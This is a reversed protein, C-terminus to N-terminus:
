HPWKTSVNGDVTVYFDFLSKNDETAAPLDFSTFTTRIYDNYRDRDDNELFAGIGWVLAFVYLRHLHEPTLRYFYFKFCARKENIIFNFILDCKHNPIVEKPQLLDIDEIEEVHHSEKSQAESVHWVILGQLVVLIQM